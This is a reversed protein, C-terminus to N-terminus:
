DVIAQMVASQIDQILQHTVGRGYVVGVLHETPDVWFGAGISGVADTWGFTGV